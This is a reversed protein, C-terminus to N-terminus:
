QNSLENYIKRWYSLNDKIRIQSDKILKLHWKKGRSIIAQGFAITDGRSHALMHCKKCTSFLNSQKTRLYNSNAQRVLHHATEAEAGCGECFPTASIKIAIAADVCKRKLKNLPTQKM